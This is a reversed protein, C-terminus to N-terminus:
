LMQTQQETIGIRFAGTLWSVVRSSRVPLSNSQTAFAVQLREAPVNDPWGEERWLTGTTM